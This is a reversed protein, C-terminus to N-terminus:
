PRGISPAPVKGDRSACGAEPLDRLEGKFLAKVECRAFDM